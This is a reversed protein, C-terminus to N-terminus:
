AKSIHKATCFRIHPYNCCPHTCQTSAASNTELPSALTDALLLPPPLHQTTVQTPPPLIPPPTHNIVSIIKIAPVHRIYPCTPIYVRHSIDSPDHESLEVKSGPLDEFQCLLAQQFPQRFLIGFSAQKVVHAHIKFLVNGVQPMLNETCGVTWNTTSNAGEIKVLQQTNIHISLLQIIDKRIIVIQSSTNYIAPVNISSGVLVM